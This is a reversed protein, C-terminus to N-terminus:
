AVLLVWHRVVADLVLNSITLSLPGGHTVGRFGQFEEVYYGVVCAVM